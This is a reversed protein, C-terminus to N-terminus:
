NTKKKRGRKAPEKKTSGNTALSPGPSDEVNTKRVKKPGKSKEIASISRSRKSKVSSKEGNGQKEKESSSSAVPLPCTVNLFDSSVEEATEEEEPIKEKGQVKPGGPYKSVEGNSITPSNVEVLKVKAGKIRHTLYHKNFEKKQIEEKCHPCSIYITESKVPIIPGQTAPTIVSDSVGSQSSSETEEKVVQDVHGSSVGVWTEKFTSFGSIEEEAKEPHKSKMFSILKDKSKFYQGCSSRYFVLQKNNRFALVIRCGALLSSEKEKTFRYTYRRDGPSGRSEPSRVAVPSAPPQSSLLGSEDEEEEEEVEEEDDSLTGAPEFYSLTLQLQTAESLADQYLLFEAEGREEQGLLSFQPPALLWPERM